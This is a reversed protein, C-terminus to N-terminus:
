HNDERVVITRGDLETNNFEDIARDAGQESAFRVTAYGKSRGQADEPIEVFKVHGVQKFYDQSYFHPLTPWSDSALISLRSCANTRMPVTCVTDLPPSLARRVM